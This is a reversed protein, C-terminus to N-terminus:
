FPVSDDALETNAQPKAFGDKVPLDREFLWGDFPVPLAEIKYMTGKATEMVVGTKIYRTKEQGEKNTYTGAKAVLEKKVAM